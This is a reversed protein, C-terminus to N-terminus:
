VDSTPRRPLGKELVRQITEKDAGYMKMFGLHKCMQRSLGTQEAAYTWLDPVVKAKGEDIAANVAAIANMYTIIDM